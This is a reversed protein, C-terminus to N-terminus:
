DYELPNKFPKDSDKDARNLADQFKEELIRKRDKQAQQEQSFLQERLEKQKDMQSKLDDFSGASKKKEEHSIIAGTQGDINLTSECCPCIISIKEM